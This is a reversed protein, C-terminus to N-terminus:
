VRGSGVIPAGSTGGSPFSVPGSATLGGAIDASGSISASGAISANGGNAAGTTSLGGMEVMGSFKSIPCDVNLASCNINIDSAKINKTTCQINLTECEINMTTTKVNITNDAIINMENHCHVEIDKKDIDMYSNDGNKVVIRKQPSDLQIINGFDDSLHFIGKKTDFQVKYRTVEGNAKSTTFTVKQNHTSIETMYSNEGNPIQDTFDGTKQAKYATVVTEQNRKKIDSNLTKWFFKDSDGLRYIEVREGIQVDPPSIRNSENSLWTCQLSEATEIRTVYSRGQGDKGRHTFQAPNFGIQGLNETIHEIPTATIINQKLLKNSTVIGLSFLKYSSHM